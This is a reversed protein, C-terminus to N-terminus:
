EWNDDWDTLAIAFTIVLFIMSGTVSHTPEYPILFGLTLSLSIAIALFKM